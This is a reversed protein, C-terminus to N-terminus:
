RVLPLQWREDFFGATVVGAAYRSTPPQSVDYIAWDPLKPVQRANNLYDYERFTVGSNIVVYKAPNLPNPYILVPVHKDISFVQKGAIIGEPTWFIPLKSAIKALVANSSLDGWLILHHAAIDSETIEKDNAIELDTNKATLDANARAETRLYAALGGAVALLGFAAAAVAGM